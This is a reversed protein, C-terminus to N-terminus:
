KVAEVYFSHRRRIPEDPDISPSYSSEAVKRYGLGRLLKIIKEEDYICRHEGNDYVGYNIHDVIAETGPELEPMVDHIDYLNFHKEDSQLYASFSTKFDPLAIRFVGDRQLVRYCDKLLQIGQKYELHEFFHSSYIMVASEDSLPLGLRLDYNVFQTGESDPLLPPPSDVLDINLWGTKIYPGCGLHLKLAKLERISAFKTQAARAIRAIKFENRVNALARKLAEPQAEYRRMLGKRLPRPLIARAFSYYNM